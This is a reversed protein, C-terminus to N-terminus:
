KSASVATIKTLRHITLTLGKALYGKPGDAGRQESGNVIWYGNSGVSSHITVVTGVPVDGKRANTFGGGSFTCGSCSVTCFQVGEKRSGDPNYGRSSDWETENDYHATYVKSVNLGRVYMFSVATNFVFSAGDIDWSKVKTNSNANATVKFDISGGKVTRGSAANKYDNTFDFVTFSQADGTSGNKVHRMRANHCELLLPSGAAPQQLYEAKGLTQSLSRNYVCEITINDTIGKITISKVTASFDYRVGNIVWYDIQDSHPKDATVKFSATGGKARKRTVPNVYDNTFDLETYSEGAGAGGADLYQVKAGVAKVIVTQPVPEPKAGIIAEVVTDGTPSFTLYYDNAGAVTKGNIHWEQVAEDEELVAIATFVSFNSFSVSSQGNITCNLCLVTGSDALAAASLLLAVALMFVFARKM